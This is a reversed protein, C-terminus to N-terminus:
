RFILRVAEFAEAFDVGSQVGRVRALGRIFEVNAYPRHLQSKYSSLADVKRELDDESLSVFATNSFSSVNQPLEYGLITSSKFARFGEACVVAHDQHNDFSSPLLVVHPKWNGRVAVLRELIEQRISPFHRVPLGWFDVLEASVGLKEVCSKCEGVLVDKPFGDPVSEECNSLAIYRVSSGSDTLRCITGACGFEDDTHPALVLVRRGPGFLCEGLEQKM